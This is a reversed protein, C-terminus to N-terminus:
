HTDAHISFEILIPRHDSGIFDGVSFNKVQVEPSAVFHDIPIHLPPGFDPWTTNIGFGRRGDRLGSASLFAQFNPSWPSTNLDGVVIVPNSAAAAVEAMHALERNRLNVADASVPSAAHMGILTFPQGNFLLDAVVYHRGGNGFDNHHLALAPVRSLLMTDYPGAKLVYPYEAMLAKFAIEHRPTMELFVIIDPDVKHVYDIVMEPTRNHYFVNASLVKLTATTPAAAEATPPQIYFPLLLTLNVTAFATAIAGLRWRGRLGAVLALLLLLWFYQLRFHSFMDFLWWQRGLFGVLTAASLVGVATKVGLWFIFFLGRWYPRPKSSLLSTQYSLM